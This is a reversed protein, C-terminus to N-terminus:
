TIGGTTITSATDTSTTGTTTSSASSASVTEYLGAIAAMITLQNAHLEELTPTATAPITVNMNVFRIITGNGYTRITYNSDTPDVTDTFNM